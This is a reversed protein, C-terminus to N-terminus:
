CTSPAIVKNLMRGCGKRVLSNSTTIVIVIPAHEALVSGAVVSVVLVVM